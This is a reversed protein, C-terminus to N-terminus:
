MVGCFNLVVADILSNIKNTEEAVLFCIIDNTSDQLLRTPRTQEEILSISIEVWREGSCLRIPLFVPKSKSYSHAPRLWTPRNYLLFFIIKVKRQEARNKCFTIKFGKKVQNHIHRWSFFAVSPIHINLPLFDFRIVNCSRKFQNLLNLGFILQVPVSQGTSSGSGTAASSPAHGGLSGRWRGCRTERRARTWRSHTWPCGCRRRQPTSWARQHKHRPRWQASLTARTAGSRGPGWSQSHRPWRGGSRRTSWPWRCRWAPPSSPSCCGAAPPWCPRAPRGRGKSWCHPPWGRPCRWRHPSGWLRHVPPPSGTRAAPQSPDWRIPPAGAPLHPKVDGSVTVFHSGPPPSNLFIYIPIHLVIPHTM